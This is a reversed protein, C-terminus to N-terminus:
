MFFETPLKLYGSVSFPCSVRNQAIPSPSASKAQTPDLRLARLNDPLKLRKRSSYATQNRCLKSHQWGQKLKASAGSKLYGKDALDISKGVM